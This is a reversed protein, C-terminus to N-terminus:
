MKLLATLDLDLQLLSSLMHYFYIAFSYFFIDILLLHCLIIFYSVMWKSFLSFQIRHFVNIPPWVVMGLGRKGKGRSTVEVRLENIIIRNSKNKKKVWICKDIFLTNSLKAQWSINMFQFFIRLDGWFQWTMMSVM